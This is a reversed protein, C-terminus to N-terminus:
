YEFIVTRQKKLASVRIIYIHLKAVANCMVSCNLTRYIGLTIQLAVFICFIRGLNNTGQIIQLAGKYM